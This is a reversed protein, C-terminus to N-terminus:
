KIKDSHDSKGMILLWDIANLVKTQPINDDRETSSSNSGLYRFKDVLKLPKGILISIVVQKFCVFKTKNSNMYLGISKEAQELCHLLSNQSPSTYKQSTYSWIRLRCQNYSGHSITQKIYYNEKTLDKSMQLVDDLSIIFMYLAFTDGQLDGAVIDNFNIDGDPSHLM